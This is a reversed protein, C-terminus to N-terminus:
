ATKAPEFKRRWDEPLKAVFVQLMEDIQEDSLAFCERVSELLLEIIFAITRNMMEDMVDRQANLFLEEVTRTDANRYRELAIIMYRIAVIVMHSTIADFSTSHCETRLKLYSKCIKFYVEIKWRLTYVKLVEEEDLDLDTCIFCVWDKRNNRNRAYVLKAKISNGDQDKVTVEISLLYKSRGRRKKNCRYIQAINLSIDEEKNEIIQRCKYKANGKKLMAIVNSGDRKLSVVMSPNSFWTDFLVYDYPINESKAKNIMNKVVSLGTEKALARRKGRLTRQDVPVDPGVMMAPNNTTLLAQSFPIFIEGNTWGGTMMRFGHRTKRDNHDFVKSCLETGKGGTRKYLSDDFILCRYHNQSTESEVDRIVNRATETQLREWNAKPLLDFRYFTDKQYNRFFKDNTFMYYASFVFFCLLLKDILLDKAKVCKERIKSTAPNGVIRLIPNDCYTLAQEEVTYDTMKTIGCKRLLSCGIFREVFREIQESIDNNELLNQTINNVAYAEKKNKNTTFM